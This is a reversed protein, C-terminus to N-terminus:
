GRNVIEAVQAPIKGVEAAFAGRTKEVARGPFDDRQMQSGPHQVTGRAAFGRAKSAMLKNSHGIPHAKTKEGKAVIAAIGKVRIGVEYREGTKKVKERAVITKMSTATVKQGFIARGVGRSRFEDVVAKRLRNQGRRIAAKTLGEMIQPLTRLRKVKGSTYFTVASM